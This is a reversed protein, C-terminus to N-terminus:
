LGVDPVARGKPFPSREVDPSRPAGFLFFFSVRCRVEREGAGAVVSSIPAEIVVQAEETVGGSIAKLFNYSEALVVDGNATVVPVSGECGGM